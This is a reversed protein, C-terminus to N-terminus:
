RRTEDLAIVPFREGGTRDSRLRDMIAIVTEYPIAPEALLRAERVEPHDRKLADLRRDLAALDYRGDHRPLWALRQVGDVLELGDDRVILGLDLPPPPTVPPTAAGNDPLTV